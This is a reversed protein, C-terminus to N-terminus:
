GGLRRQDGDIATRSMMRMFCDSQLVVINSCFNFLCNVLSNKGEAHSFYDPCLVVEEGVSSVSIFKLMNETSQEQQLLCISLSQRSTIVGGCGVSKHITDITMPYCIHTTFTVGGYLLKRELLKDAATHGTKREAFPMVEGGGEGEVCVCVCVAEM